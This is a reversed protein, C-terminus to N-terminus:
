HAPTYIEVGHDVLAWLAGASLWLGQVPARFPNSSFTWTQGDYHAVGDSRTMWLDNPARGALSGLLDPSAAPGM